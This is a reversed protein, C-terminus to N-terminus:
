VLVIIDDVPLVEKREAIQLEAEDDGIAKVESNTIVEYLM